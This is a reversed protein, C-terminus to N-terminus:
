LQIYFYSDHFLSNLTAALIHGTPNSDECIFATEGRSYAPNANICLASLSHAAFLLLPYEARTNLVILIRSGRTVGLVELGASIRVVEEYTQAFTFRAGNGVLFAKNASDRRAQELLEPTTLEGM